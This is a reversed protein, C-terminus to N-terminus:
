KSEAIVKKLGEGLATLTFIPLEIKESFIGLKKLLNCSLIIEMGDKLDYHQDLYSYVPANIQYNYQPKIEKRIERLYNHYKDDMAANLVLVDYSNLKELIDFYERRVSNKGQLANALLCAWLETLNEDTQLETRKLIEDVLALNPEAEITKGKLKAATKELIKKWAGNTVYDAAGEFRHYLYQSLVNGTMGDAYKFGDIVHQYATVIESSM